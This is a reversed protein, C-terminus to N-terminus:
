ADQNKEKNKEECHKVVEEWNMFVRTIDEEVLEEGMQVEIIELTSIAKIGHKAGVPIKLIDGQRVQYLRGDL